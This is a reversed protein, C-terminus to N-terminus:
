SLAFEETIRYEAGQPKLVSEFMAVSQVTMEGFGTDRCKDLERVAETIRSPGNVRGLTLHPHFPRAERPYGVKELGEEVARQLDMLEPVERVGAWLVRPRAGGPFTGTGQLVLPFSRKEAAAKRVAEAVAPLGAPGVEGLFKLTLHLGQPQVWRVDAGKRKLAGVLELLTAKLAPDLDIAIFTRM